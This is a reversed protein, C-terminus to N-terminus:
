RRAGPVLVHTHNDGQDPRFGLAEWFTESGPGANVTVLRGLPRARDLLANALVRGLGQRRFAPRVYFRRMRLADVIVPDVTLGGIGVLDSALQLALLVEGAREFRTTGSGWDAPLREIFRYGETRAEQQLADFGVAPETQSHEIM